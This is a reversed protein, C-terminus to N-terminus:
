RGTCGRGGNPILTHCCMKLILSTQMGPVSTAGIHQISEVIGGDVVKGLIDLLRTKETEYQEKWHSFSM